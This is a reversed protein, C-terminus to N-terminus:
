PHKASHEQSTERHGTKLCHLDEEAGVIILCTRARSLAVYSLEKSRVVNRTAALIVVQRDLGKFRRITDVTIRDETSEDLCITPFEGVFGDPAIEKIIAENEALIAIDGSYVGDDLLRTVRESIKQVVEGFTDARIWEAAVGEPGRGKIEHGTYHRLVLEHIRQTNRLNHTLPIPVLEVDKPLNAASSYLRQNNDYFVRLREAGGPAFGADLVEWWLPRFDQGEDVIIADYRNDELCEFAQLLLRPMTEEFRNANTDGVQDELDDLKIFKHCLAHFTMAEILLHQELISQAEKALGRNFCVFLTRAGNDACHLAEEMALVTKGTGAAGCIAARPIEKILRMIQFQQQTMTRLAADDQSLLAALPTSLQIPKALIRELAQLGEEGLGRTAPLDVGKKKLKDSMDADSFRELIWGGFDDHFRESFCCISLPINPGLDTKPTASQPLIVGHRAQIRRPKWHPSEKLKGLLVHKSRVAQQAPNKIDHKEGWRDTSTWQDTDPDYGVAGGKVELVLMGWDAHAVVFDCEGDIETGHADSGHWPRSYFVVFSDDLATELEGFVRCETSRRANSEIEHPLKKPWMVAM